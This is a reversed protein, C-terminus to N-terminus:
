PLNKKEIELVLHAGSTEVNYCRFLEKTLKKLYAAFNLTNIDRSEYLEEHILAMSIVRNQSDRFAKLVKSTNCIKNETFKEAQLDLLSSVVQLNNKIRHHIEKKAYKRM